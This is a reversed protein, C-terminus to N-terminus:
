KINLIKMLDTANMNYRELKETIDDILVTGLHPQKTRSFDIFLKASPDKKLTNLCPHITMRLNRKGLTIGVTGFAAGRSVLFGIDGMNSIQALTSSNSNITLNAQHNNM